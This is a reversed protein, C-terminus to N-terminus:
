LWGLGEFYFKADEQIKQRNIHLKRTKNYKDIINFSDIIANAMMFKREGETAKKTQAYSLVVDGYLVKQKSDYRMRPKTNEGVCMIVYFLEIDENGYERVKFFGSIQLDRFLPQLGADEWTDSTYRIKM